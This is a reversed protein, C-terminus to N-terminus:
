SSPLRDPFQSVEAILDFRRSRFRPLCQPLSKGGQLEDLMLKRLRTM